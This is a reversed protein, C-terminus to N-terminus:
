DRRFKRYLWDSVVLGVLVAVLIIEAVGIGDTVGAAVLIAVASVLLVGYTIVRQVTLKNEPILPGEGAVGPQKRVAYIITLLVPIATGIIIPGFIMMFGLVSDDVDEMPVFLKVIGSAVIALSWRIMQRGGYANIDYWDEESRFSQPLRFGYLANPGIKRLAFPLCVIILLVGFGIDLLGFALREVAM